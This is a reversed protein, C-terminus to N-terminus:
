IYCCRLLFFDFVNIHFFQGSFWGINYGKIMLIYDAHRDNSFLQVIARNFGVLNCIYLRYYASM